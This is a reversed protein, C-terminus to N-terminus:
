KYEWVIVIGSAGNATGTVGSYQVLGSGGSGYGVGSSGGAATNPLPRGGAGYIGDGGKGSVSNAGTSAGGSQNASGGGINIDGSIGVGPASPAYQTSTTNTAGQGGGGGTASCLAGFSSTGGSTGSTYITSVGGAGVTVTVGSFASTIKKRCYGGASGGVTNAGNAGIQGGGGGGGGVVEVVVFTTGATPTYTATGVTTFYQINNLVGAVSLATSTWGTGDSTLVNGSTGPSTLGTGGSTAGVPTSFAVGASTVAIKTSGGSQINLNGSNDSTTIVGGVGATSADISAM